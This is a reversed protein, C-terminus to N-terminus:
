EPDAGPVTLSSEGSGSPEVVAVEGTASDALLAYAFFERTCTVTARADTLGPNDGGLLTDRYFASLPKLTVSAAAGIASGDLRTVAVTCQAAYKSVNALMLHTARTSSSTLGQLTLSSGAAFLNESTVVPLAVGLAGATGKGALRAAYRVNPSGSLEILGRFTAGPRVVSTVNGPVQLATPASGRVTGDTDAVVLFQNVNAATAAPNAVTVEAEYSATGAQTLGPLPVYVTGAQAAGAVLAFALLCVSVSRSM